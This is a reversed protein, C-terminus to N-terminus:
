GRMKPKRKLLHHCDRMGNELNNAEFDTDGDQVEADSAESEVNGAKTM